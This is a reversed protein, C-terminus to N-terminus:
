VLLEGYFYDVKALTEPFIEGFRDWYSGTQALPQSCVRAGLLGWPDPRDGWGRPIKLLRKGFIRWFVVLIQYSQLCKTLKLSGLSPSVVSDVPDLRMVPVHTVKADREARNGLSYFSLLHIKRVFPDLHIADSNGQM